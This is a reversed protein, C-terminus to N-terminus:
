RVYKNLETSIMVLSQSGDCSFSDIRIEIGYRSQHYNVTVELVPGTKTNGRIWGKARSSDDDRLLTCEQCSVPCDLTALETDDITM